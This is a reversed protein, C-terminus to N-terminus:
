LRIRGVLKGQSEFVARRVLGVRGASAGRSATERMHRKFADALLSWVEFEESGVEWAGYVDAVRDLVLYTVGVSDTGSKATKVAVRRGGILFENAQNSLPTGDLAKAIRRGTERGWRSAAAGTAQDQKM